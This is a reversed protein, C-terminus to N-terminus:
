ARLISTAERPSGWAGKLTIAGLDTIIDGFMNEVVMVDFMEPSVVM